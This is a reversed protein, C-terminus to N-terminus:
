ADPFMWGKQLAGSGLTPPSALMKRLRNILTFLPPDKNHSYFLYPTFNMWDGGRKQSPYELPDLTGQRAKGQRIVQRRFYVYSIVGVQKVSV